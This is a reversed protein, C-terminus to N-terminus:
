EQFFLMKLQRFWEVVDAISFSLHTRTHVEEYGEMEVHDALSMVNYCYVHYMGYLGAYISEVQQFQRYICEVIEEMVKRHLDHHNCQTDGESASM